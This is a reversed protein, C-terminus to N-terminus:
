YKLKNKLWAEAEEVTYFAKAKRKKNKKYSAYYKKKEKNRISISGTGKKRQKSDSDIREGTSNYHNLAKRANEKTFYSGIYKQPPPSIVQWHKNKKHYFLTGFQKRNSAYKIQAKSRKKRTEASQIVGSCGEGGDTLNMGYPAKTNEVAIYSIELNSLDEEPIDDIIKEVKFKNWGYKRISNALYSKKKKYYDKWCIKHDYMRKKFNVTKGIYKKGNVTNTLRYICGWQQKVM